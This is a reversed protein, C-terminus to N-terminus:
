FVDGRKWYWLWGIGVGLIGGVLASMWHYPHPYANLVIRGVVYGLFIMGFM